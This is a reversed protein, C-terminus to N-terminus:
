GDLERELEAVWGEFEAGYIEVAREWRPDRYLELFAERGGREVLMPVLAAGVEYAYDMDVPRPERWVEALPRRIDEPRRRWAKRAERLRHLPNGDHYVATGEGILLTGSSPHLANAAVVHTLEHGVSQNWRSQILRVAPRAYGLPALGRREAEESSGWVIFRIPQPDEWGFWDILERLKRVRKATDFLNSFIRTELTFRFELLGADEASWGEGPPTEGLYDLCERARQQVNRTTPRRTVERWATLAEDRRGARFLVIGHTYRTWGWVWPPLDDRALLHELLPAAEDDRWLDALSRAAIHQAFPDEPSAALLAEAEALADAFREENYTQFMTMQADTYPSDQAALPLSGLLLLMVTMTRM